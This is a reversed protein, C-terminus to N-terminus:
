AGCSGGREIALSVIEAAIQEPTKEEIAVVYDACERYLPERQALLERVEDLGGRATLNPRRAGTTPDANIRALLLEPPATLWVVTAARLAARNEPRLVVGGGLALVVRQGRLLEKLREAEWDRFVPEGHRAFIERISLGHHQELAEDADMWTWGLRRALAKAVTTKGAGRYGILALREAADDGKSDAPM